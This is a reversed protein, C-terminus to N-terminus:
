GPSVVKEPTVRPFTITVQLGGSSSNAATITGGHRHVAQEAIALGLGIGGSQRDRASDVRYFPRFLKPLDAEPVGPGQDNVTLAVSSAGCALTVKVESHSVTYHVANRVVNEIASRLLEPNGRVECRGEQNGAIVVHCDRSQAEFDADEVVDKLVAGLNVTELSDEQTLGDDTELRSLNLMREIMTNLREAERHIRELPQGDEAKTQRRALALAFSMRALPSRLEHSIDRILRKQSSIVSEVRDAMHDFDVVLDAIEDSRRRLPRSPGHSPSGARATLDGAALRHAAARLRIVPATLYRALWFCILASVAVAFLLRLLSGIVHPRDMGSPIEIVLVYYGGSNSPVMQANFRAGDPAIVQTRAGHQRVSAALKIAEPPAAEGCLTMGGSDLLYEKIRTASLQKLYPAVSTCGAAEYSKVFIEANVSLSRALTSQWFNHAERLGPQESALFMLGVIVVTTLWFSLFIKLFLRGM